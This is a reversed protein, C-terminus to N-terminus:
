HEPNPANAVIDQSVQNASDKKKRQQRLYILGAINYVILAITVADIRAFFEDFAWDWTRDWASADTVAPVVLRIHYSDVSHFNEPCLGHMPAYAWLIGAVAVLLGATIVRIGREINTM